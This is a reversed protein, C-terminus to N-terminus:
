LIRNARTGCARADLDWHQGYTPLSVEPNRFYTYIVSLFTSAGWFWGAFNKWNGLTTHFNTLAHGM